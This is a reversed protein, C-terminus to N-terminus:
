EQSSRKLLRSVIDLIIEIRTTKVIFADAGGKKALEADEDTDRSTLIAIPINKVERDMKLMHCVKHGDMDPLLIDLLILDPKEKKAINYGELGNRVVITEYGKRELYTRILKISAENDEILLIRKNESM